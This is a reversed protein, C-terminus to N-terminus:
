EELVTARYFLSGGPVWPFPDVFTQTANTLTLDGMFAWLPNGGPIWGPTQEITYTRGVVGDLTLVPQGGAWGLALRAGATPGTQVTSSNMPRVRSEAEGALRYEVVGGLTRIGSDGSLVNVRLNFQVPNHGALGRFVVEGREIVPGGLGDVSALEWGSPLQPRCRLLELRSGAPFVFQGHITGQGPADCYDARLTATSTVLPPAFHAQIKRPSQVLFSRPNRTGTADGTWGVFEYGPAALARLRVRWGANDWPMAKTRPGNRLAREWEANRAADTDAPGPPRLGGFIQPAWAELEVFGGETASVEVPYRPVITYTVTLIHTTSDALVLPQERVPAYWGAVPKFELFYTGAPIETYAVGSSRWNSEGQLRWGAGAAVAQGPALHVTLAVPGACVVFAGWCGVAAMVLGSM